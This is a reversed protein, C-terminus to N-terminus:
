LVEALSENRSYSGANLAIWAIFASLSNSVKYSVGLMPSVTGAIALAFMKPIIIQIVFGVTENNPFIARILPRTVAEIVTATAAIAGGLLAVNVASGAILSIVATAIFGQAAKVPLNTPFNRVYYHNQVGRINISM